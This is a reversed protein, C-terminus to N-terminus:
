FECSTDFNKDHPLADTREDEEECCNGRGDGAPPVAQPGLAQLGGGGAPMVDISLFLVSFLKAKGRWVGASPNTQPGLAQLGGGDASLM